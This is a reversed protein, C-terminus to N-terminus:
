AEEPAELKAYVRRQALPHTLLEDLRDVTPVAQASVVRGWSVAVFDVQAAAAAQADVPTDGVFLAAQADVGLVRLAYLIPAPDPKHQPLSDGAVIVRFHKEWGLAELTPKLLLLPKNTVLAVPHGAKLADWLQTVGPLIRCGELPRAMYRAEFIARAEALRGHLAEPLLARLLHDLGRGVMAAVQAQPQAPLEFARLTENAAIAITEDSDLLTGDLDFLLARLHPWSATLM